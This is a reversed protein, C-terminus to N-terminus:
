TVCRINSENDACRLSLITFSVARYSSCDLQSSLSNALIRLSILCFGRSTRAVVAAEEEDAAEMEESEEDREESETDSEM